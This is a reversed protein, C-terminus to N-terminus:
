GPRVSNQAAPHFWHVGGLSECYYVVAKWFHPSTARAQLLRRGEAANPHPKRSEVSQLRRETAQMQGVDLLERVM